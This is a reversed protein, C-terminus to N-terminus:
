LNQKMKTSIYKRRDYEDKENEEDKGGKDGLEEYEGEEDEGHGSWAGRLM